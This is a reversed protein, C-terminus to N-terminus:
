HCGHYSFHGPDSNPVAQCWGADQMARIVGPTDLSGQTLDVALGLQHYSLGPKVCTGPCGDTNGCINQCALAQQGCSRYSSTIHIEGHTAREARRFARLADAQLSVGDHSTIAPPHACADATPSSTPEMGGTASSSARSGIYVILSALLLITGGIVLWPRPLPREPLGVM